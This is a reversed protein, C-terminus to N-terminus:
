VRVYNIEMAKMESGDAMTFYMEIKNHDNDILTIVSRKKMLVGTQPCTVESYMTWIKGGADVEGTEMQMTTSANDIWFGEYKKSTSNYGWYGQGAFSPFPGESRDGVYDHRLYLGDLQWTNTISGTSVMPDGPGMWMKVESNFTGAFPDLQKHEPGASPM